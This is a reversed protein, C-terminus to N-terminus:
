VGSARSTVYSPPYSGSTPVSTDAAYADTRFMLKSTRAPSSTRCIWWQVASTNTPTTAIWMIRTKKVPAKRRGRSSLQSM